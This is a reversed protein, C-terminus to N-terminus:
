NKNLVALLNFLIFREIFTQARYKFEGFTM